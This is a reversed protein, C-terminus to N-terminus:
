PLPDGRAVIQMKAPLTQMLVSLPRQVELIVHAGRAAVLPAYRCFQLPDGFGQEAHLLITKGTIAEEGTWQPQPFHRRVSKLQEPEWRWEHQQWGRTLDGILLRC